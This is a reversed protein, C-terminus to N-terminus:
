IVCNVLKSLQLCLKGSATGDYTPDHQSKSCQASETPEDCFHRQRWDTIDSSWWRVWVGIFGAIYLYSVCTMLKHRIAQVDM